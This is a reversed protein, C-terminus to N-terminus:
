RSLPRTPIPKLEAITIVWERDVKALDVSANRSDITPQGSERDPTIVEITMYAHAAAEADVFVQTDTFRVHFDEAAPRFGAVLALVTDRPTIEQAPDGARVRIDPALYKRLQAVRAIRGVEVEQSPVSLAAAVEGLRRKVARSPNFWWQYTFYGVLVAFVIAVYASGNSKM